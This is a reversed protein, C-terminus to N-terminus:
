EGGPDGLLGQQQEDDAVDEAAADVGPRALDRASIPPAIQVPKAIAAITAANM